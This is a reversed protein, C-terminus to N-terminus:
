ILRDPDPRDGSVRYALTRGNEVPGVGATLQHPVAKGNMLHTVNAGFLLTAADSILRRHCKWWPTEACMVVTPQSGAAHVLTELAARFAETQMWDAYGRFGDNRLGTNISDAAPKRRGGLDEAHVYRLGAQELASRLPPASFQPHRRSVPFRRVDVVREIKAARLYDLFVDLDVTGHGITWLESLGAAM